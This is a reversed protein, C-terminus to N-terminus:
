GFVEGLAQGLRGALPQNQDIAEAQEFAVEGGQGAEELKGLARVHGHDDEVREAGARKAGATHAHEFV